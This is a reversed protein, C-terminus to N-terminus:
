ARAPVPAVADRLGAARRPALAVGREVDLGEGDVPVPISGRARRSFAGRAGPYGPDEIWVADGPDLLLRAALDLAQQSGSVM